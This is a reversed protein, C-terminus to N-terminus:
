VSSELLIPSILFQIFTEMKLLPRVIMYLLIWLRSLWDDVSLVIIGTNHNHLEQNKLHFWLDQTEGTWYIYLASHFKCVAPFHIPLGENHVNRDEPEQALELQACRGVRSDKAIVNRSHLALLTAEALFMGVQHDLHAQAGREADALALVLELLVAPVTGSDIAVGGDEPFGEEFTITM